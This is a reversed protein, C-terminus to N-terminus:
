AITVEVPPAESGPSSIRYTGPALEGLDVITAKLVAMEMCMATPDDAGEFPTIAIEAGSREVTVSDLVSCPAVGGYWSVKVLVHQGDFSAQLATPSVPHPNARGPVPAVLAPQGAAPDVPTPNPDPAIGVGTGPDGASGGGSPDSADSADPSPATSATSPPAAAPDGSPGSAGTDCAALGIAAVIVLLAVSRRPLLSPTM